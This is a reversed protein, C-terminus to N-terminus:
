SQTISVSYAAGDRFSPLSFTLLERGAGDAVVDVGAAAATYPAALPEGPHCPVWTVSVAVSRSTWPLVVSVGVTEDLSPEAPPYPWTGCYAALSGCGQMRGILALVQSGSVSALVPVGPSTSSSSVTMGEMRAYTLRDFWEDTTEGDALLLGDYTDPDCADWCSRNAYAFGGQAIASLFGVDWGPIPQNAIDAYEDLIMVPNGLSPLSRILSRTETAWADIQQPSSGNEHWTVAALHLDHQACFELFTTMDPEHTGSWDPSGPAIPSFTMIGLSPGVIAASPDVSKIDQYTYLFQELLDQPTEAAFDSPDYYEHWGPESYVDWYDVTQGSALIGQVTSTVWSNYRSWNSWPTPPHPGGGVGFWLDSMILMTKAGSAVAADWASWDYRGPGLSKPVSEYLTAHLESLDATSPDDNPLEDFGSAAHNVPAVAAAADISVCDQGGCGSSAGTSGASGAPAAATTTTTTTPHTTTTTTPDTTTTTPTAGAVAVRGAPAAPHGPRGVAGSVAIAIDAVLVAAALWGVTARRRARTREARTRAPRTASPFTRSEPM